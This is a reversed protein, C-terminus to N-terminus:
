KHLVVVRLNVTTVLSGFRQDESTINISKSGVPVPTTKKELAYNTSASSIFIPFSFSWKSLVIM